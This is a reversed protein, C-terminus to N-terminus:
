DKPFSAMYVGILGANVYSAFCEKIKENRLMLLEVAKATTGSGTKVRIDAATQEAAEKNIFEMIVPNSKYSEIAKIAQAHIAQM